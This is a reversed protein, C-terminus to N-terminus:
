RRNAQNDSDTCMRGLLPKIRIYLHGSVMRPLMIKVALRVNRLRSEDLAHNQPALRNQRAVKLCAEKLLLYQKKNMQAERKATTGYQSRSAVEIYDEGSDDDKKRSHKERNLQLTVGNTGPRLGYRIERHEEEGESENRILTDMDFQVEPQSPTEDSESRKDDEDEDSHRHLAIGDKTVAFDVVAEKRAYYHDTHTFLFEVIQENGSRVALQIFPDLDTRHARAGIPWGPMNTTGHIYQSQHRHKRTLFKVEDLLDNEICALLVGNGIVYGQLECYDPRYNRCLEMMNKVATIRGHTCAYRFAEGLVAAKIVEARAEHIHSSCEPYFLHRQGVLGRIDSEEIYRWQSRPWPLDVMKDISAYVGLNPYPDADHPAVVSLVFHLLSRSDLYEVYEQVNKKWSSGERAPIPPGYSTETKPFAVELYRACIDKVEGVALTQSFHLPGIRGPQNLFDKVTRHMFQVILNPTIEDDPKEGPELGEGRVLEILPGCKRRLQRWFEKWSIIHISNEIIPDVKSTLAAQVDFPVALAEWMEQLRIPRDLAASGSILIFALRAKDMDENNLRDELAQVIYEYLKDLQLPLRRMTEELEAFRLMGGAAQDQLEGLILTVWLIVGKANERLYVRISKFSNEERKAALSNRSDKPDELRSANTTVSSGDEDSDYAHITEQLSELGKEIVLHIDPENEHELVVKYTDPCRKRIGSFDMEIAPDPRSLVIFKLKSNPIKNLLSGVLFLVSRTRHAHHAKPANMLSAAEDMADIICVISLGTQSIAELLSQTTKTDWPDERPCGRHRYYPTVVDFAAEHQQLLQYVISQLFSSHAIGIEGGRSNFFWDTVM